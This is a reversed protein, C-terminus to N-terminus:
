GLAFFRPEEKKYAALFREEYGIADDVMDLFSVDEGNKSKEDAIEQLYAAM